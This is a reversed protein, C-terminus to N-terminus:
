ARVSHATRSRLRRRVAVTIVALGLLAALGNAWRLWTRTEGADSTTAHPDPVVLEGVLLDTEEGATITLTIAYTGPKQFPAGPASYDGHDAHFAATAKTGGSELEVRAGLVPANSDYRDVLISLESDSLVGVAEFLDSHAVFRPLAPGGATAPADGHDHGPGALAPLAPAILALALAGRQLAQPFHRLFTPNM